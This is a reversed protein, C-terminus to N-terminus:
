RPLLNQPVEWRKRGAPRIKVHLRSETEPVVDITLNGFSSGYQSLQDSSLSLQLHQQQQEQRQHLQQAAAAVRMHLCAFYCRSCVLMEHAYCCSALLKDSLLKKSDPNSM